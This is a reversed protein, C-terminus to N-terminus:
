TRGDIEKEKLATTIQSQVRLAEIADRGAEYGVAYLNTLIVGLWLESVAPPPQFVMRRYGHAFGGMIVNGFIPFLHHQNVDVLSM